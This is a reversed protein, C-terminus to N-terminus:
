RNAEITLGIDPLPFGTTASRLLQGVGVPVPPKASVTLTQPNLLFANVATRATEVLAPALLKVVEAASDALGQALAAEPIQQQQAWWTVLRRVLTNDRWEIELDDVRVRDLAASLEQMDTDSEGAKLFPVAIAQMTEDTAGSFTYSTQITGGETLTLSGKGAYIGTSRDHTVESVGDFAFQTYGLGSLAGAAEPTIALLAAPIVFQRLTGRSITASPQPSGQTVLVEALTLPATGGLSVLLGAIRFRDAQPYVNLFNEAARKLAEAEVSGKARQEEVASVAALAAVSPWRIGEVSIEDLGAVLGQGLMSLGQMSIKAVGEDSLAEILTQRVTFSGAGTGDSVLMEGISLSGLRLWSLGEPFIMLDNQSEKPDAAIAIIADWVEGVSKAGRRVDVGQVTLDKIRTMGPSADPATPQARLMINAATFKGLM